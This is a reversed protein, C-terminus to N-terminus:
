DQSQIPPPRSDRPSQTTPERRAWSVPSRGAAAARRRSCSSSWAPGRPCSRGPLTQGAWGPRPSSARRPTGACAPRPSNVCWPNRQPWPPRPPPPPRGSGAASARTTPRAAPPAEPQASLPRRCPSAASTARTLTSPWAALRATPQRRLPAPPPTALHPQLFHLTRQHPAAPRPQLPQRPQPPGEPPLPVRGREAARVRTRPRAAPRTAPRRRLPLPSEPPLPLPPPPPARLGPAGPGPRAPPPSTPLAPAPASSSLSPPCLPLPPLSGPRSWCPGAPSSCAPLRSRTMRGAATSQRLATRWSASALREAAPSAAPRPEVCPSGTPPNHQACPMKRGPPAPLLLPTPPRTAHGWCPTGCPWCRTAHGWCPAAPRWCPAALQWCPFASGAAAGWSQSGSRWPPWPLLALAMPQLWAVASARCAVCFFNVLRPRVHHATQLAAATLRCAKWFFSGLRPHAHRAM